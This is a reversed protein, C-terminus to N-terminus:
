KRSLDKAAKPLQRVELNAFNIRTNYGGVGAHKVDLPDPDTWSLVCKGNVIARLLGGRKVLAIRNRRPWYPAHGGAYRIPFHGDQPCNAVEKDNRYLVTASRNRSNVELRYGKATDRATGLVTTINDYPHHYHPYGWGHWESNELVNYAVLLDPGFTRKNWLMGKGKPAVLAIWNSALACAMGAHDIWDGGERWWDPERRDFPYILDAGAREPVTFEIDDFVAAGKLIRLLVQDGDGRAHATRVPPQKDVRAEVATPRVSIRVDHWKDDVPVRLILRDGDKPQSGNGDALVIRVGREPGAYLEIEAESGPGQLQTRFTMDLRAYFAQAHRLVAGAGSGLLTNNQLRWAPREIVWPSYESRGTGLVPRERPKRRNTRAAKGTNLEKYEEPTFDEYDAWDEVTSKNFHYPGMVYSDPLPKEYRIAVRRIQAEGGRPTLSVRDLGDDSAPHYSAATGERHAPQLAGQIRCRGAAAPIEDVVIERVSGATAQASITGSRGILAEPAGAKTTRFWKASDAVTWPIADNHGDDALYPINVVDLDDFVASGRAVFFGIQGARPTASLSTFVPRDDILVRVVWAWREITVRHWQKLRLRDGLDVSRDLGMGKVNLSKKGNAVALEIRLAEETEPRRGLIAGYRGDTQPSFSFRMRCGSWPAGRVLARTEGGQAAGILGYQNPVRNPDFSFVIEWKKGIVEWAEMGHGPSRTFDDAFQRVPAGSVPVGVAHAPVFAADPTLLVQDFAIGDEREIMAVSHTGQTLRFRKPRHGGARVWHWNRYIADQGLTVENPGIRIGLSNGCGDRWRARVWACYEGDAPVAVDFIAAGMRRGGAGEPLVMAVGEVASANQHLRFPPTVSAAKGANVVVTGAPLEQAKQRRVVGSKLAVLYKDARRGFWSWGLLVPICGLLAIIVAVRSRCRM